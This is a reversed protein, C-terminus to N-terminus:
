SKLAGYRIEDLEDLLSRCEMTVSVDQLLDNYNVSSNQWPYENLDVQFKGYERLSDEIVELRENDNKSMELMNLIYDVDVSWRSLQNLARCIFEDKYDEKTSTYIRMRQMTRGGKREEQLTKM